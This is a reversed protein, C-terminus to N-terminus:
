GGLINGIISGALSGVAQGMANKSAASSAMKNIVLEHARGKANEAAEFAFAYYDRERQMMNNYAAQTMGTAAQANIRNAENANENNTTTISRRWTANSQDIVLRQTANFQDRADAMQRNFMSVSNFQETDFQEMANKQAVNFQAVQTKLGAFFQDTQGSSTANFQRSANEAAQDTFLSQIISQSKFVNMQNDADLNALDVSLFAQANQLRAQQRNNLNALEFQSFTAADRAAIEISSEMAAQTVASGAMSSAGLGRSAMVANANRIAGAAWVPTAGGEFQAMLKTIQGQVTADSSPLATAAEVQAQSSVTGNVAQFGETAQTVAPATTSTTVQPAPTAVPAAVAAAPTTQAAQIDSNVGVQGSTNSIIENTSEAMNTSVVPTTYNEPNTIMGATMQGGASNANPAVFNTTTTSAKTKATAPTTTVIQGVQAPTTNLGGEAFGRKETASDVMQKAKSEYGQFKAVNAPDSKLYNTFQEMPGKFGMKRALVETQQQTFGSFQKAM